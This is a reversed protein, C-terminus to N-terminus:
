TFKLANQAYCFYGRDAVGEIVGYRRFLAGALEVRCWRIGGLMMGASKVRVQV